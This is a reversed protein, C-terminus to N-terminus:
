KQKNAAVILACLQVGHLPGPYQRFLQSANALFVEM